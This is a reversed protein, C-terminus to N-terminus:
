LIDLDEIKQQLEPGAISIEGLLFPMYDKNIMNIVGIIIYHILRHSYISNYIINLIWNKKYVYQISKYFINFINIYLINSENLKLNRKIQINLNTIVM